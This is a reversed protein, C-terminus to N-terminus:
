RAAVESLPLAVVHGLFWEQKAARVGAPSAPHSRGTWGCACRAVYRVFTGGACREVDTWGDSLSGDRYRGAVYGGHEDGVTAM